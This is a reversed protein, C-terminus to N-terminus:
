RQEAPAVTPATPRAPVKRTILIVGVLIAVMALFAYEGPREGALLMGLGM